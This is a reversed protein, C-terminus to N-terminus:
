MIYVACKTRLVKSDTHSTQGRGRLSQGRGRLNKKAEAEAECISAEAKAECM